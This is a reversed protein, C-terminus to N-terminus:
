HSTGFAAVGGATMLPLLANAEGAVWRKPGGLVDRVFRAAPHDANGLREALGQATYRVATIERGLLAGAEFLQAFLARRDLDQTEVVFVDVDSWKHALGSAVSGFVFAAEVGTVDCLADRVISTPDAGEGILVRVAGWLKSRPNVSYRVLRGDLVRDLAGLAVLRVLDREISRGGLGLIRQLQRRYPRANPRLVFYRLLRATAPSVGLINLGDAPQTDALSASLAQTATQPELQNIM